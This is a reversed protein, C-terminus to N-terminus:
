AVRVQGFAARLLAERDFRDRPFEAVLEGRRMVHIRDCLGILEDLESSIVLVGMGSDALHALLRYIEQKAGVDVGRTPEDLIFLQPERLLWRGLVVKQQNGGSLSRVPTTRVDGSKLSLQSAIRRIAELVRKGDIGVRRPSLFMPLAALAMNDLVSANMMLGEHRRDETLFAVGARLRARLNGSELECGGVIVRGSQHGDIGFLVRALESRGSGMLGAIGVIEGRGVRLTIDNLVGPETLALAELVTAQISPAAQRTAFLAEVPRGIMALVLDDVCMGASPQRLVVQGDRMVMVDDALELVEELNHSIYLVAAGDDRLRRILEFLRASERATLSSTPEDFILVRADGSLARAIELQQRQGASLTSARVDPSVQLDVKTLLERAREAMQRRSIFPLGRFQQPPRLLFLNEAVSLNAFINLEQQIFAVGATDSDRRSQPNFPSGDLFVSGSDRSFVGTLLNMTTSKGSGNEGVVGLVRGGHAEFSVDHLVTVGSFAKRLGDVKLRPISMRASM